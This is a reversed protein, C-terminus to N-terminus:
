TRIQILQHRGILGSKIAVRCAHARTVGLVDAVAKASPYLTKEGTVTDVIWVPLGRLPAGERILDLTEESWVGWPRPNDEYRFEYGNIPPPCLSRLHTAVASRAVGTQKAAEAITTHVMEMGTIVNKSKIRSRSVQPNKYTHPDEIVPWPTEDNERKFVFKKEYVRTPNNARFNIAWDDCGHVRACEALSYYTVVKGTIIDKVLISSNDERLGQSFAHVTNRQRTAWEINSLGYDLKNGNIHNVDMKDVNYPYDKFTIALLRHLVKSASETRCDAVITVYPYREKKKPISVAVRSGSPLHIVKGTQSIAYRSHMPIHFYGPYKTSEIGGDPYKVVLNEADLNDKNQDAYLVSIKLWHVSSLVCDKHALIVLVGVKWKVEANVAFPVTVWHEGSSDIEHPIKECSVANIVDGVGNVLIGFLQLYVPEKATNVWKFM